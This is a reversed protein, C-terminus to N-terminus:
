KVMKGDAGFEYNGPEVLGNAKEASVYDGWTLILGNPRVYYYDGEWEVLGLDYQQVGNIYYCLKGFDDEAVGNRMILKGDAGFSYDGAPLLGNAKDETVYTAWTLILGNPRVYYYDGNWEVLGTDYQQAGNIYYCLKGFDDEAVGHRMVMKGDAGFSYDGPDVLGNAKEESVYSPWTLILGNERVYYYNGEWEVLGSDYQQAGNIYYCLKGFDDEAVGHRM